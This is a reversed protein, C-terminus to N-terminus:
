VLFKCIVDHLIHAEQHHSLYADEIFLDDAFSVFTLRADRDNFRPVDVQAMDDIVSQDGVLAQGGGDDAIIEAAFLRPRAICGAGLELDALDLHDRFGASIHVTGEM